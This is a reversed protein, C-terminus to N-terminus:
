SNHSFYWVAVYIVNLYSRYTESSQINIYDICDHANDM